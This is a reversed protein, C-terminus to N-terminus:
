ERPSEGDSAAGFEASAPFASGGEYFGEPILLGRVFKAERTDLATLHRAVAQLAEGLATDAFIWASLAEHNPAGPGPQAAIAEHYFTRLDDAIHRILVPMDFAWEIGVEPAHVVDGTDAMTGLARAVADVEDVGAGTVGFLTRGRAARTEASWPALRAVEALLRETITTAEAIPFTVPCVWTEADAEPPAEVPYDVITPATATDLLSLAARIVQKQFEPDQATGLPRGLAFPVWLARPPRVAESQERILSISTTAVGAREIYNALAGM